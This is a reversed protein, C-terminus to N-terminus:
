VGPMQVSVAGLGAQKTPARDNARAEDSGDIQKVFLVDRLLGATEDGVGLHPGRGGGAEREGALGQADAGLDLQSKLLLHPAVLAPLLLEEDAGVDACVEDPVADLRVGGDQETNRLIRLPRVREQYHRVRELRAEGAEFVGPARQRESGAASRIQRPRRPFP